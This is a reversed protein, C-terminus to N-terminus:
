GVRFAAPVALLALPESSASPTRRGVGFCLSGILRAPLQATGITGNGAPSYPAWETASFSNAFRRHDPELYMRV